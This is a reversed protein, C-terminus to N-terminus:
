PADGNYIAARRAPKTRAKRRGDGRRPFSVTRWCYTVAGLPRDHDLLGPTRRTTAAFRADAPVGVFTLRGKSIAPLGEGLQLYLRAGLLMTSCVETGGTGGREGLPRRSKARYPFASADAVKSAARGGPRVQGFGPWPWTGRCGGGLGPRTTWNEESIQVVCLPTEGRNKFHAGFALTIQWLCNYEIRDRRAGDIVRFRQKKANGPKKTKKISFKLRHTAMKRRLYAAMAAAPLPKKAEPPWRSRWSSPTPRAAGPGFSTAPGSAPTGFHQAGVGDTSERTGAPWALMARGL